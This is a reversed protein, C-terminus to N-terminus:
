HFLDHLIYKHEVTYEWAEHPTSAAIKGVLEDPSHSTAKLMEAVREETPLVIPLGDTFNNEYFYQELNKVTDPELFRPRPDRPLFETGRDESSVPETLAAIIEELIPKGTRPDEGELYRRSIASSRDTVPHPTYVIRMNPIRRKFAIATVLKQFRETVVPVTPIGL